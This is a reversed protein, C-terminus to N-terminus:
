TDVKGWVSFSSMYGIVSSYGTAGFDDFLAIHADADAIHLNYASVLNSVTTALASIDVGDVTKSSKMVINEDVDLAGNVYVVKDTNGPSLNIGVTNATISVESATLTGCNISGSVTLSDDTKLMNAASRYLNTDTGWLLGDASTTGADFVIQGDLNLAGDIQAAGSVDLDGVVFVTNETSGPDLTIGHTDTTLTITATSYFDACVFTDDTKLQNEASRYLTVDSGWILGDATTTGADFVVQGDLNLAGDIQANGSVDLNGVVYVYEDEVTPDLTIGGVGAAISIAAASTISATIISLATLNDDTKLNNESLRYLNVDSGWLLGDASTTGADFVIQGDVNLAGDIQAAGSVDLDGLIFVTNETSGPDLTISHTDTTLTITAESYIDATTVDTATITGSVDLESTPTTKGIAVNGETYNIDGGITENVWSYVSVLFDRIDQPSIDGTVNDALLTQLAGRDRIEDSM